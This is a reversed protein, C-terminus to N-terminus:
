WAIEYEGLKRSGSEQPLDTYDVARSVGFERRADEFFETGPKLLWVVRAGAPLRVRLPAPGQARGQLEPGKWVAAVPPTGARIKGHELVYVPLAPAYYAAKRWATLGREWVAISRGPREAALRRMERISHDDVALLNDIHEASTFALGNNLGEVAREISARVGSLSTGRYYWGRHNFMTVDLLVAPALLLCMVHARPPYGPNKTQALKLAFGAGLCVLPVWILVYPADVRAAIWTIAVAGIVITLAFWRSVWGSVNEVARNLLYGGVLAVPPAMLLTQGPDEVHVLLAFAFAPAFWIAPFALREWGFGWGTGRQWALVAPLMWGLVGCLVWVVLRWFTTLWQGDTAGFLGSTMSSQDAVYALNARIYTLPGGSALMAPFLWV